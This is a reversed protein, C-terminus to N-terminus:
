PSSYSASQTEELVELVRDVIELIADDSSEALLLLLKERDSIGSDSPSIDPIEVDKVREQSVGAQSVGSSKPTDLIPGTPEIFIPEDESFPVREIIEGSRKIFDGTRERSELSDVTPSTARAYVAEPLVGFAGYTALPVISALTTKSTVFPGSKEQYLYNPDRIEGGPSRNYGIEQTNRTKILHKEWMALQYFTIGPMHWRYLNYDQSTYGPEGSENFTSSQLEEAIAKSGKGTIHKQQRGVASTSSIGFYEKGSWMNEVEYLWGGGPIVGGLKRRMIEDERREYIEKPDDWWRFWPDTFEVEYDAPLEGLQKMRKIEGSSPLQPNLRPVWPDSSLKYKDSWDQSAAEVVENEAPNVLDSFVSVAAPVGLFPFRRVLGGFLNIHMGSQVLADVRGTKVFTEKVDKPLLGKKGIVMSKMMEADFTGEGYVDDIFREGRARLRRYPMTRQIAGLLPFRPSLSYGAPDDLRLEEDDGGFFAKYAVYGAGGVGATGIPYKFGEPVNKWGFRNRFKEAYPNGLMPSEFAPVDSVDIGLREATSEFFHQADQWEYLSANMRRDEFVEDRQKKFLKRDQIGELWDASWKGGVRSENVGSVIDELTWNKVWQMSEPTEAIYRNFFRGVGRAEPLMMYGVHPQVDAHQLPLGIKGLLDTADGTRIQERRTKWASLFSNRDGYRNLLSDVSLREKKSVSVSRLGPDYVYRTAEGFDGTLLGLTMEGADRRTQYSKQGFRRTADAHTSLLMAADDGFTRALNEFGMESISDALAGRRWKGTGAGAKVFVERLADASGISQEFRDFNSLEEPLFAGYGFKRNARSVGYAVGIEAGAKLFGGLNVDHGAAFRVGEVTAQAAASILATNTTVDQIQELYRGATKEGQQERLWRRIRKSHTLGGSFDFDKGLNAFDFDQSHLEFDSGLLSLDDVAMPEGGSPYKEPKKVRAARQEDVIGAVKQVYPHYPDGMITLGGEARTMGVYFLREEEAFDLPTTAHQTPFTVDKGGWRKRELLNVPLIVNQWERGKSAHISEFSLLKEIDGSEWGREGLEAGVKERLTDRERLTRALIATEEGKSIEDAIMWIAERERVHTPVSVVSVDEGSAKVARQSGKIRGLNDSIFEQAAGVIEPTSRFNEEINYLAAGRSLMEGMAEGGGGRFSMISQDLDGVAWLNPSLQGLLRAQTPSVDQFEDVQVFPFQDRYRTRLEPNSELLYGAQSLADSFDLRNGQLKDLRFAHVARQLPESLGSYDEKGGVFGKRTTEYDEVWGKVLGRSVDKGDVGWENFRNRRGRLWDEFSGTSIKPSASYGLEGFNERVVSYAFADITKINWDGGIERARQTLDREAKKGFVLTLVDDPTALNERSLYRLRETLTRSKGSGPGAMVVAPGYTHELARQQSPTPPYKESPPFALPGNELNFPDRITSDLEVNGYVPSEEFFDKPVDEYMPDEYMSDEDFFSELHSLKERPSIVRRIGVDDGYDFDWAGVDWEGGFSHVELDRLTEKRAREMKKRREEKLAENLEAMGPDSRARREQSGAAKWDDVFGQHGVRASESARMGMQQKHTEPSLVEVGAQRPRIKPRTLQAERLNAANVEPTNPSMTEGLDVVVDSVFESEDFMSSLSDTWSSAATYEAVTGGGFAVGLTDPPQQSKIFAERSEQTDIVRQRELQRLNMRRREYDSIDREHWLVSEQWEPGLTGSEYWTEGIVSPDNYVPDIEAEKWLLAELDDQAQNIKPRELKAAQAEGSELLSNYVTPSLPTDGGLQAQFGGEQRRREDRRALIEDDTLGGVEGRRHAVQYRQYATERVPEVHHYFQEFEGSYWLERARSQWGGPQRKMEADFFPKLQDTQFSRNRGVAIRMKRRWQPDQVDMRRVIERGEGPSLGQERQGVMEFFPSLMESFQKQTEPRLKSGTSQYRDVSSVKESGLLNGILTGETALGVDAAWPTSGYATDDATGMGKGGFSESRDEVGYEDVWRQFSVEVGGEIKRFDKPSETGVEIGEAGEQERRELRGFSDEPDIWGPDVEGTVDRSEGFDRQYDQAKEKFTETYDAAADPNSEPQHFGQDDFDSEMGAERAERAEVTEVKRGFLRQRERVVRERAAGTHPLLARREIEDRVKGARYSDGYYLERQLDESTWNEVDLKRASGGSESGPLVGKYDPVNEDPFGIKYRDLYDETVPVREYKLVNGPRITRQLGLPIGTTEDIIDLPASASDAKKLDFGERLPVIKGAEVRANVVLKTLDRAGRDEGYDFDWDGVNWEGGFSHLEISEDRRSALQFQPLLISPAVVGSSVGSGRSRLGGGEVRIGSDGRRGRYHLGERLARESLDRGLPVRRDGVESFLGRVASGPAYMGQDGVTGLYVGGVRGDAMLAAGSEGAIGTVTSTRIQAGSEGIIRTDGQVGSRGLMTHSGSLPLDAVDLSGSFGTVELLAIDQELNIASVGRVTGIEGAGSKARIGAFNVPEGRKGVVFHAATSIYQQGTEPDAVVSGMGRGGFGSRRAYNLEVTAASELRGLDRGTLPDVGEFDFTDKFTVDRVGRRVAKGTKRAIRAISAGRGMVVDLLIEGAGVQFARAANKSWEPNYEGPNLPTFPLWSEFEEVMGHLAPTRTKMSGVDWGKNRPDYQNKFTGAVMDYAVVGIDRLLMGFGRQEETFWDEKDEGLILDGIQGGVNPPAILNGIGRLARGIGPLLGRVTAGWHPSYVDGGVATPATTEPDPFWRKWFSRSSGLRNREGELVEDFTNRRRLRTEESAWMADFTSRSSSRLRAEEVPDPYSEFHPTPRAIDGRDSAPPDPEYLMTFPSPNENSQPVGRTNDFFPNEPIYAM